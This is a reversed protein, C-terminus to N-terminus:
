RRKLMPLWQGIQARIREFRESVDGARLYAALLPPDEWPVDHWASRLFPSTPDRRWEGPFMAVTDNHIVDPTAAPQATLATFWTGCLDAGAADGLTLASIPTARPNIELFEARGTEANIIFDFGHLGSLGLESILAASTSDMDPHDIRRMVTAPGGAYMMQLVEVSVAALVKGDRCLVARNAPTGVTFNQLHVPPSRWQTRAYIAGLNGDRAMVGLSKLLSPRQTLKTWAAQAADPERLVVVGTGGWTGDSKLVCPLPAEHLAAGLAAFDNIWRTHPIPLGLQEALMLQRTKSSAIAYSAPNGLSKAIVEALDPTSHLRMLEHAALDDCPVVIHAQSQRMAAAIDTSLTLHRLKHLHSLVSCERLLCGGAAAGHVDFGARRMAGALRGAFGWTQTSVILAIPAAANIPSPMAM